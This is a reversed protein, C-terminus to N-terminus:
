HLIMRDNEDGDWRDTETCEHLGMLIDPRDHMEMAQKYNALKLIALKMATHMDGSTVAVLIENDAGNFITNYDTFMAACIVGHAETNTLTFELRRQEFQTNTNQM